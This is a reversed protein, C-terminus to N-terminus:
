EEDEEKSPAKMYVPIYGDDDEEEDEDLIIKGGKKMIKSDKEELEAIMRKKAKSSEEIDIEKKLVKKEKPKQSGENNWIVTPQAISVSNGANNREGRPVKVEVKEKEVAEKVSIKREKLVFNNFKEIANRVDNENEFEVFAFGRPKGSSKDKPIIVKLVKGVSKFLERLDKETTEFPINGVYVRKM